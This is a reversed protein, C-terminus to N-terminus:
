AANSAPRSGADTWEPRGSLFDFLAGSDMPRAFLFGQGIECGLDHPLCAEKPERVVQQPPGNGSVALADARLDLIVSM